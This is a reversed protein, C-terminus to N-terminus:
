KKDKGKDGGGEEKKEEKPKEGGEKEEKNLKKVLELMEQEPTKSKIVDKRIKDAAAKGYSVKKTLFLNEAKAPWSGEVTKAYEEQYAKKQEAAIQTIAKAAEGAEEGDTSNIKDAKEILKRRDQTEKLDKQLKLIQDTGASNKQADELKKKIDGEKSNLEDASGHKEKFEAVAKEETVNRGLGKAFDAQQKAYADRSQVYGDKGGSANKGAIDIGEGKIFGLAGKGEATNRLDLSSKSTGTAARLTLRSAYGIPGGKSANNKLGESNTLVAAGRGLTQRALFATSGTAAGLALGAFSTAADGALKGVEGSMKKTISVAKILLFIIFVYDFYTVMSGGLANNAITISAAPISQMVQSVKIILLMFFMFVPAVLVQDLLQSRWSKAADSLFGVGVGGMFGIPATAMLFILMIFRGVILLAMFLFVFTTILFLILRVSSKILGSTDFSPSDGNNYVTQLQLGNMIRSSIQPDGSNLTTGNTAITSATGALANSAGTVLGGTSIPASTAIIQNVLATAVLNGGDIILETFFLSFNIFLASIIVSVLIEKLKGGIQGIILQISIYLLVFIFFINCVDRALTWVSQITSQFNAFGSGLISYKIAIDLINGAITLFFSAVPITWYELLYAM